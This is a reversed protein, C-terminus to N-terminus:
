GFRYVPRGHVETYKCQPCSSAPLSNVGVSWRNYVFRDLLNHLVWDRHFDPTSDSWFKAPSSGHRSLLIEGAWMAVGCYICYRDASLERSNQIFADDVARGWLFLTRCSGCSRAPLQGGSLVWQRPGVLRGFLRRAAGARAAEVRRRVRFTLCAGAPNESSHNRRSRVVGGYVRGNCLPCLTPEANANDLASALSRAYDVGWMVQPNGGCRFTSCRGNRTWCEEHHGVYCVDCMAVRDEQQLKRSCYLCTREPM